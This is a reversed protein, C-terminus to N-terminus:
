PSNIIRDMAEFFFENTIVNSKIGLAAYTKHKILALMMAGATSQQVRLQTATLEGLEPFMITEIGSTIFERFTIRNRMHQFLMLKPVSPNKDVVASFVDRTSADFSDVWRPLPIGGLWKDDGQAGIKSLEIDVIKAAADVFSKLEPESPTDLPSDNDSIITSIEPNRPTAMVVRYHAGEPRLIIAGSELAYTGKFGHKFYIPESM